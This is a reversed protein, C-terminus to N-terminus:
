RENGEDETWGKVELAAALAAATRGDLRFWGQEFRALASATVGARTSLERRSLGRAQRLGQCRRGAALTAPTTECREPDKVARIARESERVCALFEATRRDM